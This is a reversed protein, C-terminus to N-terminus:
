VLRDVIAGSDIAIPEVEGTPSFMAERAAEEFAATQLTTRMEAVKALQTNLSAGQQDVLRNVMVAPSIGIANTM